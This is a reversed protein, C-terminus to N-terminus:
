WKKEFGFKVVRGLPNGQWTDYGTQTSNSGGSPTDLFPPDSNLINTVNFTLKLGQGFGYLMDSPVSWSANLDVTTTAPIKEYVVSGIAGVAPQLGTPVRSSTNPYWYPNAFNVFLNAEFPDMSWGFQWRGTFALNHLVSANQHGNLYSQYPAGISGALDYRLTWAGTVVTQFTGYNDTPYIYHTSMDIGNAELNIANERLGEYIYYITSPLPTTVPLGAIANLVAPSTPTWGGPPALLLLHQLAPVTLENDIPPRTVGGVIKAQWYTVNGGLGQLANVLLGANWDLALSYTMGRAPKLDANGAGVNVGQMSTTVTCPGAIATCFSGPYNLHTSPVTFSATNPGVTGFALPNLADINPATFSTGFSGKWSIGDVVNWTFGFRPNRTAGVDNYQDYRGAADLEFSQILPVNMEPGILPAYLEVFAAYSTRALPVYNFRSESLTPGAGNTSTNYINMHYQTWEGGIAARLPGGPLDFLPGTFNLRAEDLSGQYEASTAGSGLESLVLASTKNTSGPPDWVDLANATTLTRLVTDTTGLNYPDAVSTAGAPGGSTSTTGNIALIACSSCFNNTQHAFSDNFGNVTDLTAQWGMPLTATFTANVYATRAGVEDRNPGILANPDWRVTESATSGGPPTVYFPNRSNTGNLGSTGTPGFATVTVSSQPQLLMNSRSSYDFDVQASLWSTIQQNFSVWGTNQTLSPIIAENGANNCTANDAVTSLGLNNAATYPYAYVAGTSSASITAPNCNFSDYNTGGKSRLDQNASFSRMSNLLKSSSKYEYVVFVGGTDWQHGWIQSFDFTNYNDAFGYDLKTDFGEYSKRTIFNIVGAVASSGYIASAGTPLVDIRQIAAAPISSPDSYGDQNGPTIPHGNVLVLTNQSSSAGLGHITPLTEGTSGFAGQNFENGGTAMGTIAPVTSLMQAITQAGSQDIASRDVQILSTGVPAVGKISTGTVVVTEVDAAPAQQAWSPSSVALLGALASSACWVSRMSRRSPFRGQYVRSQMNYEGNSCARVNHRAKRMFLMFARPKYLARFARDM